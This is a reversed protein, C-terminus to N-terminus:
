FGQGHMWHIAIALWDVNSTKNHLGFGHGGQEYLYIEVPVGHAKLAAAFDLSNGVKVIDDDKAHVLFTPPTKDTVQLEGSYKTISDLPPNQGLLNTRSGMHGLTDTMSIVPYGLIMFDPRLSTNHPNPIYSTQWHTGESSALHGGASFGMIGIQNAKVGLEAAHERVYQVARQADQLPGISKHVMISDDPLRYKLLIGVIGSDALRQAVESGEHEAALIAYSGGPCIIVASGNSRGGPPLYITLTPHTVKSIRLVGDRESIEQETSPKANPIPDDGYLPVITQAKVSMITLMLLIAPLCKRIFM